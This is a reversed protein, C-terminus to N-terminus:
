FRTIIGVFIRGFSNKKEFIGEYSLSLFLLRNIRASIDVSFINQSSNYSSNILKYDSKRFSLSFDAMGSLLNKSIRVGAVQSEVYGTFLKNYNLSLSTEIFPISSYSIYGGFNRTPKIDGNRFRYGGNLGLFLRNIIRFNTRLNLGQRTENEFLSDIFNKYTEYYVVNKRADYSLTASFFSGPSYRFSLFLSTFILENSEVEVIKKYLDIESSIFLYTNELINNSHQFYIFRRDTKSNNTQQMFAINNEMIGDGVTDIRGFYGGYEFLDSNFNYDRFDPRFGAVVGTYYEDFRKEVQLGDISGVNSIHQNRHRGLTLFMSEDFQYKFALDYVKLNRWINNSLSGWQDARYNFNIYSSFSLDSNYIKDADLSITYRWRQYDASGTFNSFNSHSQLSIRGTIGTKSKLSKRKYIKPIVEGSPQFDNTIKQTSTDESDGINNSITREALAIVEDNVKLERGNLLVCASSTSSLFKIQLVPILENNDKVFITDGSEIGDTNDFKVYIYQSSIFTVFGTLEEKVQAFLSVSSCLLIFLIKILSKM